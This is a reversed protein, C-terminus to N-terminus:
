CARSRSGTRREGRCTLYVIYSFSKVKKFPMSFKLKYKCYQLGAETAWYAKNEGTFKTTMFVTNHMNSVATLLFISILVATFLVYILFVGKKKNKPNYM